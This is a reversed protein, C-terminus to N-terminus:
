GLSHSGTPFPPFRSHASTYQQCPCLCLLSGLAETNYFFIPLDTEGYSLLTVINKKPDLYSHTHILSWPTHLGAVVAEEVDQINVIQSSSKWLSRRSLRALGEGPAINLTRWNAPLLLCGGGSTASIGRIGAKRYTHGQRYTQEKKVGKM